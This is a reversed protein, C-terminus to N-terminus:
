TRKAGRRAKTEEVESEVPEPVPDEDAAGDAKLRTLRSKMAPTIVSGPPVIQEGEEPQSTVLRGDSLWIGTESREEDITPQVGVVTEDTM